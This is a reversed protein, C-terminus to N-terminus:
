QLGVLLYPLNELLVQLLYLVGKTIWLNERAEQLPNLNHEILRVFYILPGSLVVGNVAYYGALVVLRYGDLIHPDLADVLQVQILVLAGM